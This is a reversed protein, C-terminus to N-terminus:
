AGLKRIVRYFLRAASQREPKVGIRTLPLKRKRLAANLGHLESEAVSRESRWTVSFSVSVVDGNRVFHPAKVPVHIADGALLTVAEGKGAFTDQWPLNRHGGAHFAESAQAPVLADDRPPFVTMTKEGEIQLLINHEPDIHFPTVSGPSSLFIFAERNLMAGTAPLVVDDLEALAADLLSGYDPDREVNKLVVWSGNADITRITDGVSLGNSPTDEARIGLPLKGLNHEYSGEPMRDALLALAERSFLPHGALGHTLKVARDPYAAAFAGRAEEPFARWPNRGDGQRQMNM